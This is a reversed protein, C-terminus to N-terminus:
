GEEGFLRTLFVDRWKRKRRTTIPGYDVGWEALGGITEKVAALADKHSKCVQREVRGGPMSLRVEIDPGNLEATITLRWFPEM